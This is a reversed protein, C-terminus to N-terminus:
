EDDAEQAFVHSDACGNFVSSTSHEVIAVSWLQKPDILHDAPRPPPGTPVNGARDTLDIIRPFRPQWLYTQMEQEDLALFHLVNRRDAQLRLAGLYDASMNSRAPAGCRGAPGSASSSVTSSNGSGCGRRGALGGPSTVMGDCNSSPTVPLRSQPDEVRGALADPSVANDPTQRPAMQKPPTKAVAPFALMGLHTPSVVEPIKNIQSFDMGVVPTVRRQQMAANMMFAATGPAYADVAGPPLPARATRGEAAAAGGGQTLAIISPSPLPSQSPAAPLADGSPLSTGDM